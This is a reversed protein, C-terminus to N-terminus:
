YGVETSYSCSIISTPACLIRCIRALSFLFAHQVLSLASAFLVISTIVPVVPGHNVVAYNSPSPLSSSGTLGRAALKDTSSHGLADQTTSGTHAKIWLIRSRLGLLRTTRVMGEERCSVIIIRPFQRNPDNKCVGPVQTPCLDQGGDGL